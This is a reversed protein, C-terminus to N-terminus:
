GGERSGGGRIALPELGGGPRSAGPRRIAVHFTLPSHGELGRRRSRIWAKTRSHILRRRDMMQTWSVCRVGRVAEVTSANSCAAVVSM